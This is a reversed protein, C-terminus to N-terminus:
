QKRLLENRAYISDPHLLKGKEITKQISIDIIYVISKDLNEETLKKAYEFDTWDRDEGTVDAAYLIKALIGMNEKATTHYLVAEVMDRSFGFERKAIDAGIKAHLLGTNIKEIEDIILNHEKIYQFKEEETMEKAIDHVLGVKSAKETDVNYIKALEVCRKQVCKSHYFRYESLTNKVIKELEEIQM